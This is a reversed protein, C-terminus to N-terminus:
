NKNDLATVCRMREAKVVQEAVSRLEAAQEATLTKPTFGTPVTDADFLVLYWVCGALYDGADNAHKFDLLIKRSGDDQKRNFYGVILSGSQDPLAGDPRNEFDFSADTKYQWNPLDRAAQFADGVPIIRFGNAEALNRYNESLRKYMIQQDLSDDREFAPADSRWAWTEHVVIEAQSAYKGIAAILTDAYPQFSDAQYSLNSLQQITVVDWEEAQLMKIVDAKEKKGTQPDTYLYAAGESDGAEAQTLHRVHRELSCGGIYGNRMVFTKGGAEAIEPLFDMADRSFSNGIALVKINDREDAQATATFCVAVFVWLIMRWVPATNVACSYQTPSFM